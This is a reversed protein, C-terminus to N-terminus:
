TVEPYTPFDYFEMKDEVKYSPFLGNKGLSTGKSYGDWHNGYLGVSTGPALSLEAQNSPVHKEVAVGKRQNGGGFYFIDDLSTFWTSADGHITQMKEYALRCVQSSFTCVLHDTLSLFHIDKIVGILDSYRDSPGSKRASMENTIFTYNRYKRKAEEIVLLDDSALYVRREYLPLSKEYINFWEEVHEMYESVTHYSAEVIKDTRRIHVGVIPHKFRLLSQEKEFYETMNANPRTLYKTLQGIWWVMPNGHFRMLRDAIDRPFAPPFYGREFKAIDIAGLKVVRKESFVHESKTTAVMVPISMYNQHPTNCSTSLPKFFTTYKERYTEFNPNQLVMRRRSAYASLLCYVMHHMQCGYGCPKSSCVLLRGSCNRSNQIFDLRRQILDGLTQSERKRWEDTENKLHRLNRKIMSYYGYGNNLISEVRKQTEGDTDNKLGKLQSRIYYWLESTVMELRRRTVEHDLSPGGDQSLNNADTLIPGTNYQINTDGKAPLKKNFSLTTNELLRSIEAYAEIIERQQRRLDSYTEVLLLEQNQETTPAKLIADHLLLGCSFWILLFIGITPWSRLRTSM